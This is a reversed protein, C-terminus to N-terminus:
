RNMLTDDHDTKSDFVWFIDVFGQDILRNTETDTQNMKANADM